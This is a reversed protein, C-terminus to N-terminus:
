FLNSAFLAAPAIIKVAYISEQPIQYSIKFVKGPIEKLLRPIVFENHNDFNTPLNNIFPIASITNKIKTIDKWYDFPSTDTLDERTGQIQSLRQQAVEFFAKYVAPKLGHDFASGFNVQLNHTLPSSDFLIVWALYFGNVSKFFIQPFLSSHLRSLIFNFEKPLTEIDIKNLMNMDLIGNTSVSSILHRELIEKLAHSTAMFDSYGAALGNTVIGYKRSAETLFAWHEPV